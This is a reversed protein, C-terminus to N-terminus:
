RVYVRTNFWRSIYRRIVVLIKCLNSRSFFDLIESPSLFHCFCAGCLAPLKPSSKNAATRDVPCENRELMGRIEVEECKPPMEKKKGEKEEEETKRERELEGARRVGLQLSDPLRCRTSVILILGLTSLKGGRISAFWGCDNGWLPIGVGPGVHVRTRPLTIPLDGNIVQNATSIELFIAQSHSFAYNKSFLFNNTVIILYM